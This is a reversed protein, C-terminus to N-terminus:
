VQLDGYISLKDNLYYDIKAFFILNMRIEMTMTFNKRLVIATKLIQIKILGYISEM